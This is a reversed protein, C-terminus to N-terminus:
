DCYREMDEIMRNLSQSLAVLGVRVKMYDKLDTKDIGSRLSGDVETAMKSVILSLARISAGPNRAEGNEQFSNTSFDSIMTEKVPLLTKVVESWSAVGEKTAEWSQVIQRVDDFGLSIEKNEKAREFYGKLLNEGSTLGESFTLSEKLPLGTNSAGGSSLEVGANNSPPSGAPSTYSSNDRVEGKLISVEEQKPHSFSLDGTAFAVGSCGLAAGFVLFKFAM